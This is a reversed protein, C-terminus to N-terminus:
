TNILDRALGLSQVMREVKALDCGPPARLRARRRAATKQEGRGENRYRDFRYEGYAFGLAMQEAAAAPLSTACHFDAAPLKDALGGGQWLGLDAIDDLRGLGFLAGSATGDAAPLLLLRHKEAKFNATALWQVTQPSQAARWRDLSSE